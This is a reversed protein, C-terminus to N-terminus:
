GHCGVGTYTVYAKNLQMQLTEFDFVEEIDKPLQLYFIAGDKSILFLSKTLHDKLTGEVIQTGYMLGYEQESDILIDFKQLNKDILKLDDNIDSFVFYCYIPVQIDSMFQDIKFMEKVFQEQTNPFSIFLTMAGDEHSRSITTATGDLLQVDINEAMYGIDTFEDTLTQIENNYKINSDM